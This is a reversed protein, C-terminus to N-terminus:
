ERKGQRPRKGAGLGIKQSKQPPFLNWAPWRSRSGYVGCQSHFSIYWGNKPACADIHTHTNPSKPDIQKSWVMIWHSLRPKEKGSPKLLSRNGSTDWCMCCNERVATESVNITERVNRTPQTQRFSYILRSRFMKYRSRWLAPKHVSVTVTKPHQQSSDVPEGRNTQIHHILSTFM